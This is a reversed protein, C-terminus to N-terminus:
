LGYKKTFQPWRLCAIDKAEAKELKSSAKGGEKYLLVTTKGGFSVISGGNAIIVKEQDEDRYGTFTVGVGQLKSSALKVAKVKKPHQVPIGAAKVWKLFSPWGRAIAEAAVTGGLTHSLTDEDLTKAALMGKVTWGDDLLKQIRREGIGKEFVCSAKVLLPLSAGESRVQEMQAVVKAAIKPSLGAGVYDKLKLLAAQKTTTVGAEVLKAIQGPGIHDIDLVSYFTNLRHVAVRDNSVADVLAIHTGTEDWEWKGFTSAAPLKFPAKKVVEVIKPIIEGSRVIKVKAGVGLGREKAWGANNLAALKVTAGDFEVPAVRAKPVLMGHKSPEWIIEQITTLRGAENEKYAVAFDPKDTTEKLGEENSHVVLGDIRYPCSKHAKALLKSLQKLQLKGQAFTAAPIVTFGARSAFKLGDSLSVRPDLLRLVVVDMDKIAAHVDQRNFLGSALNRDSKFVGKWKKDFTSRKMAIECRLVFEGKAKFARPLNLHPLFHSVDEGTVGDGRTALSVPEGNRCVLQYAAGDIKPMAILESTEQASLWRLVAGENDTTVKNLSPMPKRLKVSRKKGVKIGTSHLYKWDPEVEAIAAELKDFKADSMIPTEGGYYAKKAALYLKKAENLQM